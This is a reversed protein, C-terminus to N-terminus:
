FMDTLSTIFRHRLCGGLPPDVVGRGFDDSPSGAPIFKVEHEIPVGGCGSGGDLTGILLHCRLIPSMEPRQLHFDVLLVPLRIIRTSIVGRMERMHLRVLNLDMAGNPPGVHSQTSSFKSIRENNECTSRPLGHSPM